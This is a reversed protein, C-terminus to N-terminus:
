QQVLPYQWGWKPAIKAELSSDAGKMTWPKRTYGSFWPLITLWFTRENTRNSTLLIVWLYFQCSFGYRWPTTYKMQRGFLPISRLGMLFSRSTWFWYYHAIFSEVCQLPWVMKTTLPGAGDHNVHNPIILFVQDQIFVITRLRTIKVLCHLIANYNEIQIPWTKFWIERDPYGLERCKATLLTHDSQRYNLCFSHPDFASGTASNDTRSTMLMSLSNLDRQLASYMKFSFESSQPQREIDPDMNPSLPAFSSTLDEGIIVIQRHSSTKDSRRFPVPWIFRAWAFTHPSTGFEDM